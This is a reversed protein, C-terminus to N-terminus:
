VGPLPSRCLLTQATEAVNQAHPEDVHYRHALDAVSHERVDEHRVRGILEQLLGERLAGSSM